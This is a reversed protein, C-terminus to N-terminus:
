AATTATPNIWGLFDPGSSVSEMPQVQGNVLVKDPGMAMVMHDKWVGVDGAKLQTPPLPETVPTGPPPLAVNAQEWGERVSAGGLVARVAAAGEPTRAQVTQGDPLEVDATAAPPEPTAGADAAPTTQGGDDDDTSGDDGVQEAGGDGDGDGDVADDDNVELADKDGDADGPVGEDTLGLEDGGRDALGSLASLPDSLGPMGGPGGGLSPMPFGPMGPNMGPGMGPMFGAPVSSGPPDPPPREPDPLLSRVPGRGDGGTDAALENHLDALEATHKAAKQVAANLKALDDQVAKLEDTVTKNLAKLDDPTVEQGSAQKKKLKDFADQINKKAQDIREKAESAEAQAAAATEDASKKLEELRGLLAKLAGVGALDADSHAGSDEQPGQQDPIDHDEGGSDEAGKEPPGAHPFGRSVWDTVTGLVGNIVYQWPQTPDFIVPATM